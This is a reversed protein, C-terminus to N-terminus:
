EGTESLKKTGFLKIIFGESLSILISHYKHSVNPNHLRKLLYKLLSWYEYSDLKIIQRDLSMFNKCYFAGRRKAYGKKLKSIQLDDRRGHNHFVLVEPAYM